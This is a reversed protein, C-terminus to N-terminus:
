DNIFEHEGWDCGECKHSLNHSKLVSRIFKFWDQNPTWVSYLDKKADIIAIGEVVVRYLFVFVSARFNVQCHVLTKSSNNKGLSQTFLEFDALTPRDFDVPIHLYDMGLQKVIRDEAKIASDNDTFALYVILEYGNKKALALQEASPQGSSSLLKSYQRYNTIDALEEAIVSSNTLLIIILFVIKLM